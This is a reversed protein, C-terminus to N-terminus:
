SIKFLAVRSELDKKGELEGNIMRAGRRAM